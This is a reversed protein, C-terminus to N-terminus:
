AIKSVNERNDDEEEMSRSAVVVLTFIFPLLPLTILTLLWDPWKLLQILRQGLWGEARVQIKM